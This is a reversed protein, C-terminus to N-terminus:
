TAMACGAITALVVPLDYSADCPIVREHWAEAAGLDLAMVGTLAHGAHEFWVCCHQLQMGEALAEIVQNVAGQRTRVRWVM